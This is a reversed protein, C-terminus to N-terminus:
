YTLAQAAGQNIPAINTQYNNQYDAADQSSAKMADQQQKQAVIQQLTIAQQLQNNEQQQRLQLLMAQNIRQMTAMDTQEFPDLSHSASELNEIDQERQMENARMTGLTQLNSQTIADSLDTTAGQAAIQQQGLTSLSAYGPLIGTRPVSAGQYSYQANTGSNATDIVPQSNGYTNAAQDLL